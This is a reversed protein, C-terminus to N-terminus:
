LMPIAPILGAMVASPTVFAPAPRFLTHSLIPRELISACRHPGIGSVRAARHIGTGVQPQLGAFAQM